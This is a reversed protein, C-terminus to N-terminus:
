VPTLPHLVSDGTLFRSPLMLPPPLNSTTQIPTRMMSKTEDSEPGCVKTSKRRPLSRRIQVMVCTTWRRHDHDKKHMDAVTTLSPNPLCVMAKANALLLCLEPLGPRFAQVRALSTRTQASEVITAVSDAVPSPPSSPAQRVLVRRQHHHTREQSIGRLGQPTGASL